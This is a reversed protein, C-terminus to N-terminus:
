KGGGGTEAKSLEMALKFGDTESMCNQYQAMNPEAKLKKQQDIKEQEKSLKLAMRLSEDEEEDYESSSSDEEGSSSFSNEYQKGGKGQIPKGAVIGQDKM